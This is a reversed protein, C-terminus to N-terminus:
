KWRVDAATKSGYLKNVSSRCSSRWRMAFIGPRVISVDGDARVCSTLCIGRMATRGDAATASKTLDSVAGHRHCGSLVGGLADRQRVRVRSCDAGDPDDVTRQHARAEDETRVNLENTRM